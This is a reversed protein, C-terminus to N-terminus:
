LVLKQEPSSAAEREGVLEAVRLANAAVTLSPNTGGSTPMFSADVVYVNNTGHIKCDAGVVSSRPDDGSRCTGCPHGLNLMVESNTFWLRLSKLQQKLTRRLDMVRKELEPHIVYNVKIGSDSEQALSVYNSEYPFDEVITTFVSADKFLRAAIIAPIRLLPRLLTLRRWFSRDFAQHLFTLISGYGATLGMAQVEGYKIGDHDYFDRFALARSPGARSFDGGPFILLFDSAHFMLNRGVQDHQNGIGKPWGASQSRLLIAPSFLAGAALMVHDTEIVQEHGNRVVVVGTAQAGEMVIRSVETREILRVVGKEVLPEVLRNRADSKCGSPCVTGGCETCDDVYDIGVHLRYPTLRASKFEHFFHRDCDSMPPPDKLKYDAVPIRPDATGHVRFLREVEKYHPELERYTYPWTVSRGDPMDRTEFDTQEFRGLTAAYFLTSGGVGCGLMPWVSSDRGNINVNFQTPWRGADLREEPDILERGEIEAKFQSRGQEVILVRKKQKALGHAIAGGGMGAGVVVVDWHSALVEQEPLTWNNSM